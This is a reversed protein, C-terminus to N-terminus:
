RNYKELMEVWKDRSQTVLPHSIYSRTNIENLKSLTNGIISKLAQLKNDVVAKPVDETGVMMSAMDHIKDVLFSNVIDPSIEEEKVPKATRLDILNQLRTDAEQLCMDIITNGNGEIMTDTCSIQEAFRLFQSIDSLQETLDTM